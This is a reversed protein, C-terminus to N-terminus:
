AAIRVLGTAKVAWIAGFGAVSLAGMWLAARAGSRFQFAASSAAVWAPMLMLLWVLTYRPDSLLALLGVLAVALPLGLLAASLSKLWM